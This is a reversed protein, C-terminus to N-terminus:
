KFKGNGWIWGEGIGTTPLKYGIPQLQIEKTSLGRQWKNRGVVTLIGTKYDFSCDHTFHFFRGKVPMSNPFVQTGPGIEIGSRLVYGPKYTYVSQIECGLFFEIHAAKADDIINTKNLNSKNM